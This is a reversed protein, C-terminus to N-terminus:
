WGEGETPPVSYWDDSATSPLNVWFPGSFTGLINDEPNNPDSVSDAAKLILPSSCSIDGALPALTANINQQAAPFAALDLQSVLEELVIYVVGNVVEDENLNSGIPCCIKGVNVAPIQQGTIFLATNLTLVISDLLAEIEVTYLSLINGQEQTSAPCDCAALPADILCGTFPPTKVEDDLQTSECPEGSVVKQSMWRSQIQSPEAPCMFESERFLNGPLGQDGRGVAYNPGGQLANFYSVNGTGSLDDTGRSSTLEDSTTKICPVGTCNSGSYYVAERSTFRDDRISILTRFATEKSRDVLFIRPADHEDYDVAEGLVRGAADAVLTESSQKSVYHKVLADRIMVIGVLTGFGLISIIIILELTIM